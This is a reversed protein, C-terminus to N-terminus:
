MCEVKLLLNLGDPSWSTKIEQAKEVQKYVLPKESNLEYIM